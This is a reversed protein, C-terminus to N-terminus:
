RFLSPLFLSIHPVYTVLMLAVFLPLYFFAGGAAESARSHQVATRALTHQQAYFSVDRRLM